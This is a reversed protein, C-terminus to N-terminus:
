GGGGELHRERIDKLLGKAAEEVSAPNTGKIEVRRGIRKGEAPESRLYL